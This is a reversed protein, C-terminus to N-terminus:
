LRILNKTLLQTTYYALRLNSEIMIKRAALDGQLALRSYYVEEEASLLPSYGIESLYIQTPDLSSASEETLQSAVIHNDTAVVDEHSDISKVNM